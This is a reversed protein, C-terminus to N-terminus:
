GTHCLPIRTWFPCCSQSESTPRGFRWSPSCTCPLRCPYPRFSRLLSHHILLKSIDGCAISETVGSESIVAHAVAAVYVRARRNIVALAAVLAAAVGIIGATPWVGVGDPLVWCEWLCGVLDGDAAILCLAAVRVLGWARETVWDANVAAQRGGFADGSTLRLAVWVRASFEAALAPTVAM